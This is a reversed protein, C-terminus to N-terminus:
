LSRARSSLEAQRIEFAIQQKQQVIDGAQQPDIGVLPRAGMAHGPRLPADQDPQFALGADRLLFQGFQQLDLRDGHRAEDVPQFRRPM